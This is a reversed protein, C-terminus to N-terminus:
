YCIVDDCWHEMTEHLQRKLSVPMQAPFEISILERVEFELYYDPEEETAYVDIEYGNFPPKKVMSRLGNLIGEARTRTQTYGTCLTINEM